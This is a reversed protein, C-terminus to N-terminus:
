LPKGEGPCTFLTTRLQVQPLLAEASDVPVIVALRCVLGGKRDRLEIKMDNMQPRLELRYPLRAFFQCSGTPREVMESLAYQDLAPCGHAILEDIDTPWHGKERKFAGVQAAAFVSTAKGPNM